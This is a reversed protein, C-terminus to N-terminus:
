ISISYLVLSKVFMGSVIHAIYLCKNVTVSWIYSQMYLIDTPRAIICSNIHVTEQQGAKLAMYAMSTSTPGDTTRGTNM